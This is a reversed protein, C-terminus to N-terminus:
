REFADGPYVSVPNWFFWEFVGADEAARIQERIEPAGYAGSAGDFAQLWPRLTAIAGDTVELRAVASDLATRVLTYPAANPDPIDFSGAGYLAPYVMPLLVDTVRVLRDWDQGIGDGGRTTIVRGFVDATIPIGLDALETRSRAIFAEIAEDDTRGDRAPFVMTARASDGVDPFRVYDWQVEAFGAELAERALAINYDWVVDNHADVWPRGTESDVWPTGSGDLIALDPRAEALVPDRFCAIRAVPYISHERLTALLARLDPIHGRTAGAERALPVASEYSVEGFEKVDIVFANLESGEVLDILEQLRASSGATHATLYIGRVREPRPVPEIRGEALEPGTPDCASVLAAMVVAVLGAWRLPPAAIPCM